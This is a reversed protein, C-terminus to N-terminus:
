RAPQAGTSCTHDGTSATPAASSQRAPASRQRHDAAELGARRIEDPVTLM